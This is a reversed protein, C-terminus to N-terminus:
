VTVCTSLCVLRVVTYRTKFHSQIFPLFRVTIYRSALLISEFTHQSKFSKVGQKPSVRLLNASMYTAHM